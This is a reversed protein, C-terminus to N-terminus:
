VQREQSFTRFKEVDIGSSKLLSIVVDRPVLEESTPTSSTTSDLSQNQVKNSTSTSSQTNHQQQTEGNIKNTSIPNPQQEQQQQYHHYPSPKQNVDSISSTSPTQKSSKTFYPPLCATINEDKIM